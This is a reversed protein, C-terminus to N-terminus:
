ASRNSPYDTSLRAVDQHLVTPRTTATTSRDMGYKVHLNSKRNPAGVFSCADSLLMPTARVKGLM